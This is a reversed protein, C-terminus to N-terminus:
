RAGFVLGDRLVEFGGYKQNVQYDPLETPMLQFVPLIPYGVSNMKYEVDKEQVLLFSCFHGGPVEGILIEIPYTTGARLKMWKGGHMSHGHGFSKGIPQRIEPLQGTYGAGWSGDFVVNNAVRVIVLDDGLGGFRFTGSYPPSMEGQYHVIWRQPQVKDAVDFASPATTADITPIFIQTTSLEVPAKFYPDLVDTDWEQTFAKTIAGVNPNGTSEGDQNQKLDYLQGNLASGGLGRSGFLSGLKVRGQGIGTGTGGGSGGLLSGQILGPNGTATPMSFSPTLTPAPVTIVDSFDPADAGGEEQIVQTETAQMQPLPEEDLLDPMDEILADQTGEVYDSEFFTVPVIGEYVVYSGVALIIILHIFLAIGFSSLLPVNVTRQNKSNEASAQNEKSPNPGAAVAMRLM